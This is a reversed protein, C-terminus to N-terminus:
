HQRLVRSSMTYSIVLIAAMSFFVDYYNKFLVYYIDFISNGLVMLARYANEATLLISNLIDISFGESLIMSILSITSFGQLFLITIVTIILFSAGILLCVLGAPIRLFNKKRSSTDRISQMVCEEFDEPPDLLPQEEMFGIVESLVAYQEACDPCSKLHQKFYYHDIDNTEGDFFKMMMENVESCKM